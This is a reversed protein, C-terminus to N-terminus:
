THLVYVYDLCKPAHTLTHRCQLTADVGLCLIMTIGYYCPPLPIKLLDAVTLSFVNQGGTSWNAELCSIQEDLCKPFAFRGELCRSHTSPLFVGTFLFNSDSNEKILPPWSVSNFISNLPYLNHSAHLSACGYKKKLLRENKKFYSSLIYLKSNLSPKCVSSGFCENNEVSFFCILLLHYFFCWKNM